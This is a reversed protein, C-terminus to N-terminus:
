HFKTCIGGVCLVQAAVDIDDFELRGHVKEVLNRRAVDELLHKISKELYDV